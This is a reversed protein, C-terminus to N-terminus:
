NVIGPFDPMVDTTQFNFPQFDNNNGSFDKGLTQATVATANQWNLYYGNPGFRGDGSWPKPLLIGARTTNDCFQLHDTIAQGDILYIEALRASVGYGINGPGYIETNPITGIVHETAGNVAGPGSAPGRANLIGDVYLSYQAGDAVLMLHHWKTDHLFPVTFYGRPPNMWAAGAVLYMSNAWYLNSSPGTSIGAKGFGTFDGGMGPYGQGWWIECGYGYGGAPSSWDVM